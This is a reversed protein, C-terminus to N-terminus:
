LATQGGDVMLSTGTCYKSDDSAFFLCAFAVDEVTGTRKIITEKCKLKEWQDFTWGHDKMEKVSAGTYITGPCVANVRIKYDKWLDLATNKTIQLMAAKTASYTVCQPQAIFSSISCLM